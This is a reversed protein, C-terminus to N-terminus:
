IANYSARRNHVNVYLAILHNGISENDDLNVAYAGSKIKALNNRSYIGNFKLENQYFTQIEFNASPHPPM